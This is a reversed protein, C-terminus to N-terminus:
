DLPKLTPHSDPINPATCPTPLNKAIYVYLSCASCQSPGVAWFMYVQIDDASPWNCSPSITILNIKHIYIHVPCAAPTQYVSNCTRTHTHAHAGMEHMSRYVINIGLSSDSAM